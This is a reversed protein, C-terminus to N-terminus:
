LRARAGLLLSGGVIHEHTLNGNGNEERKWNFWGFLGSFGWCQTLGRKDTQLKVLFLQEVFCM